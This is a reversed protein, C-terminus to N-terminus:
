ELFAILDHQAFRPVAIQQRPEVITVGRDSRLVRLEQATVLLARLLVSMPFQAEPVRVFGEVWRWVEARQEAFRREGELRREEASICNECVGDSLPGGCRPCWSSM